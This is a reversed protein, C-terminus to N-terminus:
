QSGKKLEDVTQQLRDLKSLMDDWKARDIENRRNHSLLILPNQFTSVM